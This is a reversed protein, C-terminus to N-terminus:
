EVVEFDIWQSSVAKKDEALLDTVILQLAYDGLASTPSLKIRGFDKIRTLDSQM